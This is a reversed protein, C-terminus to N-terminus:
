SCRARRGDGTPAGTTMAGRKRRRDAVMLIIAIVVLVPLLRTLGQGIGRDSVVGWGVSVLLWAIVAGALAGVTRRSM